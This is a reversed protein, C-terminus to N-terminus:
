GLKKTMGSLTVPIVRGDSIKCEGVAGSTLGLNPESMNFDCKMSHGQNGLLVAYAKSYFRPNDDYLDDGQSKVGVSNGTFVEGDDTVATIKGNAGFNTTFTFHIKGRQRGSSDEIPSTTSNVVPACAAVLILLALSKAIRM